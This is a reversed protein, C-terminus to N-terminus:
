WLPESSLLQQKRTRAQSARQAHTSDVDDSDDSRRLAQPM